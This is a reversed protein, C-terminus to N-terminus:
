QSTDPFRVFAFYVSRLKLCIVPESHEVMAPKKWCTLSPRFLTPYKRKTCNLSMVWSVSLKSRDKGSATKKKLIGTASRGALRQLAKGPITSKTCNLTMDLVVGSFQNNPLCPSNVGDSRQLTVRLLASTSGCATM